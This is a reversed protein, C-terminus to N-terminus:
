IDSLLCDPARRRVRGVLIFRSEDYRDREWEIWNAAIPADSGDPKGDGVDAFHGWGLGESRGCLLIARRPESSSRQVVHKHDDGISGTGHAVHGPLRLLLNGALWREGRGVLWAVGAYGVKGDSDPGGSGVPGNSGSGAGAGVDSIFQRRCRNGRSWLLLYRRGSGDYGLLFDEDNDRNPAFIFGFDRSLGYLKQDGVRRSGIGDL